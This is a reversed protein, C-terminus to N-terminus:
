PDIKRTVQVGYTVTLICTQKIFNNKGFIFSPHNVFGLVNATIEEFIRLRLNKIESGILM